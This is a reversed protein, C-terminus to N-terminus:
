FNQPPHELQLLLPSHFCAPSPSTLVPEESARQRDIDYERKKPTASFRGANPLSAAGVRGAHTRARADTCVPCRTLALQCSHSAAISCPSTMPAVSGPRSVLLTHTHVAVNDTRAQTHTHAHTLSLSLSRIPTHEPKPHRQRAASASIPALRQSPQRHRWVM